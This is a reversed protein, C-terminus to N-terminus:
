IVAFEALVTPKNGTRKAQKPSFTAADTIEAAFVTESVAALALPSLISCTVCQTAM